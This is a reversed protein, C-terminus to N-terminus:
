PLNQAGFFEMYTQRGQVYFGTWEDKGAVTHREVVHALADVQPSKRLADFSAQDLAVYFHGMFVPPLADAAFIARIPLLLLLITSIQKMITRLKYHSFVVSVQRAYAVLRNAIAGEEV